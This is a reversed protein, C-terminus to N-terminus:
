QISRFPVLKIDIQLSICKRRQTDQLTTLIHTMACYTVHQVSVSGNNSTDDAPRTGTYQVPIVQNKWNEQSTWGSIPNEQALDYDAFNGNLAINGPQSQISSFKDEEQCTCRPVLSVGYMAISSVWVGNTDAAPPCVVNFTLAPNPVSPSYVVAPSRPYLNESSYPGNYSYALGWYYGVCYRSIAVDDM